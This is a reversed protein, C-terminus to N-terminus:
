LYSFCVCKIIIVNKILNLVVIITGDYNISGDSYTPVTNDKSHSDKKKPMNSINQDASDLSMENFDLSGSQTLNSTSKPAADSGSCCM